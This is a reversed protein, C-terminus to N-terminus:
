VAAEVMSADMENILRQNDRMELEFFACRHTCYLAPEDDISVAVHGITRECVVCEGIVGFVMNIRNVM